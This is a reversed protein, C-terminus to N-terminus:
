RLRVKESSTREVKGFARTCTPRHSDKSNYESFQSAFIKGRAFVSPDRCCNSIGKLVRLRPASCRKPLFGTWAQSTLGIPPVCISMSLTRSVSEVLVFRNFFPSKLRPPSWQSNETLLKPGQCISLMQTCVNKSCPQSPKINSAVSIRYAAHLNNISTLRPWSM